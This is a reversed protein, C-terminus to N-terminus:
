SARRDRGANLRRLSELIASPLRAPEPVPEGFLYGQFYRIGQETLTELDAWQEVGEAILLAGVSHALQVVSDVISQKYRHTRIGRTLEMDLKIIHPMCSSLTVLGNSGSGFDDLAILFGQEAYEDVACQFRELDAIAERETIELAIRAPDVGASRAEDALAIAAPAPDCFVEPTVNLFWRCGPWAPALTAIRALAAARCAHDLDRTLDLARARAFLLGPSQYPWPGRALVEMGMVTGNTADVIPQFHPTLDAPGIDRLVLDLSRIATSDPAAKM